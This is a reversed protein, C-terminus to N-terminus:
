EDGVRTWRSTWAVTYYDRDTVFFRAGYADADYKVQYDNGNKHMFKMRRVQAYNVTSLDDFSAFCADYSTIPQDGTDGCDFSVIDGNTDQFWYGEMGGTVTGDKHFTVGVQTAGDSSTFVYRGPLTGATVAPAGVPIWDHLWYYAGSKRNPYTYLAQYGGNVAKVFRVTVQGTTPFQMTIAGDDAQTWTFKSSESYKGVHLDTHGAVGETASTFEIENAGATGWDTNFDLMMYTAIKDGPRVRYGTRAAGDILGAVATRKEVREYSGAKDVPKYGPLSIASAELGSPLQLKKHLDYQLMLRQNSLSSLASREYWVKVKLSRKDGSKLDFDEDVTVGGAEGGAFEVDRPANGAANATTLTQPAEGMRISMSGNATKALLPQTFLEAQNLLHEGQTLVSGEVKKRSFNDVVDRVTTGEANSYKVKWNANNNDGRMVITITSKVPCSHVPREECAADFLSMKLTGDPDVVWFFHDKLQGGQVVRGLMSDDSYPAAIVSPYFEFGDNRADAPTWYGAVDKQNFAQVPSERSIPLGSGGGGCAVLAIAAAITAGYRVVINMM